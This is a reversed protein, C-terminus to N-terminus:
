FGQALPDGECAPGQCLSIVCRFAIGTYCWARDEEWRRAPPNYVSWLAFAQCMEVTKWGDIVANAAAAKAFHIAMGYIHPKEKYYRSAVTCVSTRMSAHVHVYPFIEAMLMVGRIVLSIRFLYASVTFLFPCRALVSAPSHINEDLIPIIPQLPPRILNRTTLAPTRTGWRVSSAHLRSFIHM